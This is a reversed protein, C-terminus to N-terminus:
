ICLDEKIRSPPRGRRSQSKGRNTSTLSCPRTVAQSTTILREFEIVDVLFPKIVVGAIAKMPLIGKRSMDHLRWMKIEYTKSLENLTMWSKHQAPNLNEAAM